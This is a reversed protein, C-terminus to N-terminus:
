CLNASHPLCNCSRFREGAKHEIDAHALARTNTLFLDLIKERSATVSLQNRRLIDHVKTNMFIIKREAISRNRKDDKRRREKMGKMFIELM